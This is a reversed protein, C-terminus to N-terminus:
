SVICFHLFGPAGLNILIGVSKIGWRFKLKVEKDERIERMLILLIVIADIKM